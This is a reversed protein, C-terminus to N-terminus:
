VCRACVGAYVLVCRRMCVCRRTCRHGRTRWTRCLVDWAESSSGLALGVAAGLGVVAGPMHSCLSLHAAPLLPNGPWLWSLGIGRDRAGVTVTIVPPQLSDVSAPISKQSGHSQACGRGSLSHGRALSLSSLLSSRPSSSRSGCWVGPRDPKGWSRLLFSM